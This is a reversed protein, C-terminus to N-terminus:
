ECVKSAAASASLKLIHECPVNKFNPDVGHLALCGSRPM